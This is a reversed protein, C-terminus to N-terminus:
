EQAGKTDRLIIKGEGKKCIDDVKRGTERAFIAMVNPQCFGGQCRGMGARVRRKIGDVTTPPIISHISDVIEGESIEECRCIIHGYMPNKKILKDREEDSLYRTKIVSKRIPNFSTNKSAGLMEAAWKAIDEAIAPACTLGPSQIGAAHLINKTWKGRSVVFDEEYTAARTGSFYTILDFKKLTNMTKEHKEFIGNVSERTVTYDERDPVEIANPGVLSNRDVTPIIGGGKTHSKSVSASHTSFIAIGTKSLTPFVSKDMLIDTGKRPHISFFKDGAMEAVRDAFIGAANVVIRPIITGRNTIVKKIEGNEVVMDEVVTRLSVEAGNIVASEALAITYNYPCISGAHPFYVGFKIDDCINPEIKKFDERGLVQADEISNQKCKAKVYINAVPRLWSEVFAISQGDERYEVDIDKCLSPILKKARILYDLKASGKHLDFGVHVCGDNRSSSQMALDEEKDVLLCSIDYKRLERLIASGIVGGGIVLVDVEKGDLSKDAISPVKMPTENYGRLTIENVVHSYLKSKAVIKGCEVVDEWKDLEGRLFVIDDRDTVEINSFSKKALLKAVKNVKTM